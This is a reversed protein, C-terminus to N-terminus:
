DLTLATVPMKELTWEQMSGDYLRVNPNGLMESLVFWGASAMVGTNCYVTAPSDESGHMLKLTKRLTDEDFMYAVPGVDNSLLTLPLNKAGPIHGYWKPDVSAIKSAVGLYGAPDRIDLLQGKGSESINKVDGLAALMETRGPGASFNGRKGGSRGFMIKRGSQLWAATGGDLIAVDKHGFYKLTYYLRAAMATEVAREGKYAIVLASDKNVGSKQMLREFEERAPLWGDTKKGAVSRQTTLLSWRVLMAGPIHGAVREAEKGKAGAGCPNVPSGGKSRKSFSNVDARVDLLTVKDLNRDLWDVDVLPGPLVDARATGAGIFFGIVLAASAIVVKKIGNAILGAGYSRDGKLVPTKM